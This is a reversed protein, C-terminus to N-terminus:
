GFSPDDINRISKDVVISGLTSDVFSMNNRLRDRQVQQYKRSAVGKCILYLIVIIGAFCIALLIKSSLFSTAKNDLIMVFYPLNAMKLDMGVQWEENENEYFRVSIYSFVILDDNDEFNSLDIDDFVMEVTENLNKWDLKDKVLFDRVLTKEVNELTKTIALGCQKLRGEIDPHVMLYYYFKVSVKFINPYDEFLQPKFSPVQNFIRLKSHHKLFEYGFFKTANEAKQGVIEVYDKLVIEDKSSKFESMLVYNNDATSANRYSSQGLDVRFKLMGPYLIYGKKVPYQIVRTTVNAKSDREDLISYVFDQNSTQNFFLMENTGSSIFLAENITMDSCSELLLRFEGPQSLFVSYQDSELHEAEIFGQYLGNPEITKEDNLNINLKIPLHASSPELRIFFYGSRIEPRVVFQNVDYGTRLFIDKTPMPLFPSNENIATPGDDLYLLDPKQNYASVTNIEIEFKTIKALSKEQLHFYMYINGNPDPYILEPKQPYLELFQEKPKVLLSYKSYELAKVKVFVRAFVVINSKDNTEVIYDITKESNGKITSYSTFLNTNSISVDIKGFLLNVKVEVKEYNNNLPVLFQVFSDEEQVYDFWKNSYALIPYYPDYVAFNIKAPGDTSTLRLILHNSHRGKTKLIDRTPLSDKRLILTEFYNSDDSIIDVLPQDTKLGYDLMSIQLDSGQSYCLTEFKGQYNYLDLYYFKNQEINLELLKQFEIKILNTFDPLFLLNVKSKEAGVVGVIFTTSNIKEAKMDDQSVLIIDGKVNETRKWHRKLTPLSEGGRNIFMYSHGSEVFLSVSFDAPKKLTIMYYRWEGEDVITTIESFPELHNIKTDLYVKSFYEWSIASYLKELDNEVEIDNPKVYFLYVSNKNQKLQEASYAIQIVHESGTKYDFLNENVLEKMDIERSLSAIDVARSFAIEVVNGSFLNFALTKLEDSRYLFYLPLYNPVKLELGEKMFIPSDDIVYTFSIDSEWDNMSYIMVFFSCSDTCYKSKFAKADFIHVGWNLYELHEELTSNGNSDQLFEMKLLLNDSNYFFAARDKMTELNIEFTLAKFAPLKERFIQGPLGPQINKQFENMNVYITFDIPLKFNVDDDSIEKQVSIVIPSISKFKASDGKVDLHENNSSYDCPKSSNFTTTNVQLCINLNFLVSNLTIELYNEESLNSGRPLDLVFNEMYIKKQPKTAFSLAKGITRHYLKQIRIVEYPHTHNAETSYTPYLDFLCYETSNVAVYITEDDRLKESGLCVTTNYVVAGLYTYNTSRINVMSDHYLQDPYMNRTSFYVDCVGSVAIVKFTVDSYDLLKSQPINMKYNKVSGSNVVVSTAENAMITTHGLKGSLKLSYQVKQNHNLESCYVGLVFRCTASTPFDNAVEDASKKVDCNFNLPLSNKITKSDASVIRQKSFKFIQNVRINRLPNNVEDIDNTTVVCKEGSLPCEKVVLLANGGDYTLDIMSEVTEFSDSALNLDYNIVQNKFIHGQHLSNYATPLNSDASLFDVEFDFKSVKDPNLSRYKVYFSETKDNEMNAEYSTIALHSTENATLKYKFRNDLSPLTDPNVLLEIENETPKVTFTWTGNIKPLMLQYYVSENKELEEKLRLMDRIRFQYGNYFIQAIIDIFEIDTMYITVSYVCADDSCYFPSDENITKVLGYGFNGSAQMQFKKSTPFEAGQNIYMSISETGEVLQKKLSSEACIQLRKKKQSKLTSTPVLIRTQLIKAFQTHIRLNSNFFLEINDVMVLSCYWHLVLSGEVNQIQIRQNRKSFNERDFVIIDFSKDNDIRIDNSILEEEEVGTKKFIQIKLFGSGHVRLAYIFGNPIDSPVTYSITQLDLKYIQDTDIKNNEPLPIARELRFNKQWYRPKGDKNIFPLTAQDNILKTNTSQSQSPANAVSLSENLPSSADVPKSASSADTANVALTANDSSTHNGALNADPGITPIVPASTNTSANAALSSEKPEQNTSNSPQTINSDTSNTGPEPTSQLLVAASLILMLTVRKM